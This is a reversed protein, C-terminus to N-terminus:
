MRPLLREVRGFVTFNATSGSNDPKISAVEFAPNESSFQAYARANAFGFLLVWVFLTLYKM